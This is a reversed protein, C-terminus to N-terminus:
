GGVGLHRLDAVLDADMRKLSGSAASVWAKGHRALAKWALTIEGPLEALLVRLLESAQARDKAAKPM